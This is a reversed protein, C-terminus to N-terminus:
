EVWIIEFLKIAFSLLGIPLAVFMLWFQLKHLPYVWQFSRKFEQFRTFFNDEPRAPQPYARPTIGTRLEEDRMPAVLWTLLVRLMNFFLLLISSVFVFWNDHWGLLVQYARYCGDVSAKAGRLCSEENVSLSPGGPVNSVMSLSARNEIALLLAEFPMPLFFLLSFALVFLMNAGTYHRRLVSWSDIPFSAFYSDALHTEDFEIDQTDGLDCRVFSARRLSVGKLLAESFTTEILRANEFSTEKRADNSTSFKVAEFNCKRVVASNFPSNTVSLDTFTVDTLNSRRFDSDEIDNKFEINNLKASFFNTGSIDVSVVQDSITADSLDYPVKGGSGSAFDIKWVLEAGSLDPTEKQGQAQRWSNWSASGKSFEEVHNQNAM